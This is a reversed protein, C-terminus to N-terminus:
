RALLDEFSQRAQEVADFADEVRDPAPLGSASALSAAQSFAQELRQAALLIRPDTNADPRSPLRSKLGEIQRRWDSQFGRWEELKRAQFEPDIVNPALPTAAEVARNTGEDMLSSLDAAVDRYTTLAARDTREDIAALRVYWLETGFHERRFRDWDERIVQLFGFDLTAGSVRGSLEDLAEVAARSKPSPDQNLERSLQGLATVVQDSTVGLDAAPTEFLAQDVQQIAGRYRDADLKSASAVFAAAEVEGESDPTDATVDGPGFIRYLVVAIGLLSLLMVVFQPKERPAPNVGEKRCLVCGSTLRPDFHLGHVKCKAARQRREIWHKDDAM